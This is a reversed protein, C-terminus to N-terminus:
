RNHGNEEEKRLIIQPASVNDEPCQGPLSGMKNKVMVTACASAKVMEEKYRRKNAFSNKLGSDCLKIM